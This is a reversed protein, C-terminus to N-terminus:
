IRLSAPRLEGVQHIGSPRGALARRVAHLVGDSIEQHTVWRVIGGFRIFGLVVQQTPHNLTPEPCGGVPDAAAGYVEVVPADPTLLPEVASLLEARVSNNVWAVLLEAKGGLAKGARQALGVPDSWDAAVWLARRDASPEVDAPLDASMPAYRRSPLVVHWGERVLAAATGALM